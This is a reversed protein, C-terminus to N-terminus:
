VLMAHSHMARAWLEAPDNDTNEALAKVTAASLNALAMALLPDPHGVLLSEVARMDEKLFSTVLGKALAITEGSIDLEM